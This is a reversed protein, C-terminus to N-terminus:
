RGPMIFAANGNDSLATRDPKGEKVQAALLLERKTIDHCGSIFGTKLDAIQYIEHEIFTLRIDEHQKEFVDLRGFFKTMHRVLGHAQAFRQDCCFKAARFRRCARGGRVRTRQSAAVAGIRCHEIVVANRDTFASLLHDIKGICEQVIKM